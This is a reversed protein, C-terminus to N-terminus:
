RRRLAAEENASLENLLRGFVQVTGSAPRVLGIMERLLTTKGSGSGGVLALVEGRHVNLDVGDHIVRNGFRTVIGRLEILREAM